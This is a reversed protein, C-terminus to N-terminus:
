TTTLTLLKILVKFKSHTYIFLAHLQNEHSVVSTNITLIKVMFLLIM